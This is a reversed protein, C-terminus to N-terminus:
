VMSCTGALSDSPDSVLRPRDTHDAVRNMKPCVTPVGMRTSGLAMSFEPVSTSCASLLEIM